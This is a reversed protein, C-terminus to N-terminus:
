TEVLGLKKNLITNVGLVYYVSIGIGVTVAFVPLFPKNTIHAILLVAVATLVVDIIAIGGIHIHIGKGPEGFINKLENAM